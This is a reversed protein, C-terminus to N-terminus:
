QDDDFERDAWRTSKLCDKYLALVKQKHTQPFMKFYPNKSEHHFYNYTTRAWKKGSM